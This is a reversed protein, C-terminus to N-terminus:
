NTSQITAQKRDKTWLDWPIPDLNIVDDFEDMAITIEPDPKRLVRGYVVQNDLLHLQHTYGSPRPVTVTLGTRLAQKINEHIPVALATPEPGEITKLVAILKRRTTAKV